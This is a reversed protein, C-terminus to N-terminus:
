RYRPMRSVSACLQCRNALGNLVTNPTFTSYGKIAACPVTWEKCRYYTLQMTLQLLTEWNGGTCSYRTSATTSQKTPCDGVMAGVYVIIGGDGVHVAPILRISSDKIVHVSTHWAVLQEGSVTMSRESAATGTLMTLSWWHLFAHVKYLGVIYHLHWLMAYCLVYYQKYLLAIAM